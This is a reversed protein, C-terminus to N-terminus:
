SAKVATTARRALANLDVLEARDPAKGVLDCILEIAHFQPDAVYLCSPHALFDFVAGHDIAWEVSRRSHKCSGSWGGAATAFPAM